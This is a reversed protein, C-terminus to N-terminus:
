SSLSATWCMAPITCVNVEEYLAKVSEDKNPYAWMELVVPKGRATAIDFTFGVDKFHLMPVFMEVPHNGTNFVKGNAMELHGEDTCVVLIPKTGAYVKGDHDQKVYKTRSSTAVMLTFPSPDYTGDERLKSTCAGMTPFEFSSITGALQTRKQAGRDQAHPM